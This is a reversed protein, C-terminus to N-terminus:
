NEQQVYDGAKLFRDPNQARGNVWVEYHLHSGTSRGTSGMGGIRQGVAVRQGPVVAFAQLHAYRTKFGGGHDIEIVNGYGNRQGTFSVVGPGTSYIPSNMGGAFDQGSHYAPAHTFPDLRVGFGSSREGTSPRSLPLKQAAVNMARL